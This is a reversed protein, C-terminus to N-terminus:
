TCVQLSSCLVTMLPRRGARPLHRRTTPATEAACFRRSCAAGVASFLAEAASPPPMLVSVIDRDHWRAVIDSTRDHERALLSLGPPRHVGAFLAPPPHTCPHALSTRCVRPLPPPPPCPRRARAAPGDPTFALLDGGKGGGPKMASFSFSTSLFDDAVGFTSRCGAPPRDASPCGHSAALARPHATRPVFRLASPQSPQNPSPQNPASPVSRRARAFEAPNYQEIAEGSVKVELGPRAPPRAPPVPAGSSASAPGGDDTDPALPNVSTSTEMGSLHQLSLLLVCM